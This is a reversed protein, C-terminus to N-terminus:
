RNFSSGLAASTGVTGLTGHGFTFSGKATLGKATTPFVWLSGADSNEGPAGVALESRGDRNADVLKVAGGFLDGAEAAGPVDATDQNFGVTGTGTPGSATGPLVLVSGADKKTGIDEQAVGVAIDGYGDGNMDGISLSSGFGDHVEAAGPVGASDQNFVKARDGRPGTASGPVYTIMGGLALPYDLDSDYGEVTRGVVLDAYKDGNIHGAAITEGGQLRYGNPRNVTTYSEALGTAGGDRILIRRADYEDGDHVAAALDDRGDGNFDGAAIGTFRLDDMDPIKRAPAAASGDRKFPGSLVRISGLGLTVIDMAGDGDFDGVASQSGIGDYEQDGTLLTAGGSLGKAGGWIVTLSGAQKFTGAKESGAGVVLDSYGDKDLDASVMSSGFADGSAAADPIGPSNQTLVQKTSTQLGNKSGYVVGVYGAKTKGDVTAGPATFALDPYGDGNFDDRRPAPAPVAENASASVSTTARAPTSAQATPFTTVATAVTIALVVTTGLARSAM